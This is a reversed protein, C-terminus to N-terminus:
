SKLLIIWLKFVALIDDLLEKRDVLGCLLVCHRFDVGTVLHHINLRTVKSNM